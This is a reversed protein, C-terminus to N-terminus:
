EEEGVTLGLVDLIEPLAREEDNIYNMLESMAEKRGLFLLATSDVGKFMDEAALREIEMSYEEIFEWLADVSIYKRETWSRGM